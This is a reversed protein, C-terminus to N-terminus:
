SLKSTKFKTVLMLGWVTQPLYTEKAWQLTDLYFLDSVMVKLDYEKKM